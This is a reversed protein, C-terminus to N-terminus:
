LDFNNLELFIKNLGIINSKQTSSVTITSAQFTFFM